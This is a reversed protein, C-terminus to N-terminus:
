LLLVLVVLVSIRSSRFWSNIKKNKFKNKNNIIIKKNERKQKNTKNATQNDVMDGQQNRQNKM